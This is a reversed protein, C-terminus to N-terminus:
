ICFNTKAVQWRKGQQDVGEQTFATLYPSDLQIISVEDRDWFIAVYTSFAQYNFSTTAQNLEQGTMVTSDVLYAKSWGYNAAYKVCVRAREKAMTASFPLALVALVLVIRRMFGGHSSM